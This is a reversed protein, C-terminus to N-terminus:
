ESILSKYSTIFTQNNEDICEIDTDDRHYYKVNIIKNNIIVRGNRTVRGNKYKNYVLNNNSSDRLMDEYMREIAWGINEKINYWSGFLFIMDSESIPGKPVLKTLTFYNPTNSMYVGNDSQNKYKDFVVITGFRTGIFILRHGSSSISKALEGPVLTILDVSSNFSIFSSSESNNEWSPNYEIVKSIKDYTNSFIKGPANSM